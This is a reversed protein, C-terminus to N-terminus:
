QTLQIHRAFATFLQDDPLRPDLVLPSVVQHDCALTATPLWGALTEHEEDAASRRADDQGLLRSRLAAVCLEPLPLTNDSAETKTERLLLERRGGQLQREISLVANELDIAAWALGLVEGKRLGLVLILVYAAYLPDASERAAELFTRAEDSTWPV